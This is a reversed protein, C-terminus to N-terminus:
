KLFKKKNIVDKIISWIKKLNNKNDILLRDYYTRETRRLLRTLMNRYEKYLQKNSQSPYKKYHAYLKNKHKISCKMGNTLRPKRTKYHPKLSKGKVPFSSNYIELFLNHFMTYANQCSNNLIVNTWDVNKIKNRFKKKNEPSMYRVFAYETENLIKESTTITFISFHDSVDTYIIGNFCKSKDISNCFINDIFTASTETLRTPKSILPFFSYSFMLEVFDSTPIHESINILNLNFDGMIYVTRNLDKLNALITSMNM